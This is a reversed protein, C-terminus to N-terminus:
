CFRDDSRVTRPDEATATLWGSREDPYADFAPVYPKIDLVPTGDLIDIDEVTLTVGEVAVLRLISLGIANPRRPARTAFVGHHTTDLFPVVELAYGESRHFHYLLIIRSFGSLDKLGAAYAPDLEITGRVGRAGITQVPMNRPDSFPSHVTGIPTFTIGTM